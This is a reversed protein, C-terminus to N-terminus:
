CQDEGYYNEWHCRKCVPKGNPFERTDLWRNKPLFQGCDDCRKIIPEAIADHEEQESRMQALTLDQLQHTNWM